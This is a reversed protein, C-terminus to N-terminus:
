TVQVVAQGDASDWFDHSISINGSFYAIGLFLVAGLLNPLYSKPIVWVLVLYGMSFLPLLVRPDEQPVDYFYWVILIGAVIFNILLSIYYAYKALFKDDSQIGQMVQLYSPPLILAIFSLAAVEHPSYPDSPKFPIPLSEIWGFLGGLYFQELEILSQLWGSTNITGFFQGQAAFAVATTLGFAFFSVLTTLARSM